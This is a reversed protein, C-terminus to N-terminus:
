KKESAQLVKVLKEQNNYCIYGNFFYIGTIYMPKEKVDADSEHIKRMNTTDNYSNTM